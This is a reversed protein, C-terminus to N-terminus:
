WNAIRRKQRGSGPTGLLVPICWQRCEMLGIARRTEDLFALASIVGHKGPGM